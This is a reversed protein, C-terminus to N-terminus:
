KVRIFIIGCILMSHGKANPLPAETTGKHAHSKSPQPESSCAQEEGSNIYQTTPLWLWPTPYLPTPRPSPAAVVEEEEANPALITLQPCAPPTFIELSSSSQLPSPDSPTVLSPEPNKSNRYYTWQQKNDRFFISIADRSWVGWSTYPLPTNRPEKWPQHHAPWSLFTNFSHSLLTVWLTSFSTKGAFMPFCMDTVKFNRLIIENMYLNRLWGYKLRNTYCM